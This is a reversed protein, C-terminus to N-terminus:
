YVLLCKMPQGDLQRNHYTDVAKQADKLNKYIVEAVGPRVLRAALLDGVDEFLEKIDEQSVTNQLNSVVIRHGAPVVVKTKTASFIGHSEPQPINADLRSHINSTRSTGHLHISPRVPPAELPMEEDEVADLDIYARTRLPRSISFNEFNRNMNNRRIPREVDSILQSAAPNTWKYLSRVPIDEYVAEYQYPAILQKRPIPTVQPVSPVVRKAPQPISRQLGLRAPSVLGLERQIALKINSTTNPKNTSLSIKGNRDTKRLINSGIVKVNTNRSLGGNRNERIKDLKNRADQTKAMKALIDRADKVGQRKKSIIKQRADQMKGNSFKSKKVLKNKKTAKFNGKNKKITNKLVKNAM